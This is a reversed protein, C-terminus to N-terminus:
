GPPPRLPALLYHRPCPPSRAGEDKRTVKKSLSSVAHCPGHPIDGCGFFFGSEIDLLNGLRDNSTRKKQQRHCLLPLDRTEKKRARSIITECSERRSVSHRNRKSSKKVFDVFVASNCAVKLIANIIEKLVYGCIWRHNSPTQVLVSYCIALELM